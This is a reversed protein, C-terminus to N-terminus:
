KGNQQAKVINEVLHCAPFIDPSFSSVCVPNMNDPFGYISDRVRQLVGM